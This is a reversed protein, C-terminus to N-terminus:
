LSGLQVIEPAAAGPAPADARIEAPTRALLDRLDAASHQALYLETDGLEQRQRLYRGLLERPDTV